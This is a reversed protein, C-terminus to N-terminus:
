SAAGDAKPAPPVARGTRKFLHPRGAAWLVVCVAVAGILPAGYTAPWGGPTRIALDIMSNDISKLVLFALIAGIIQRWLGFRSFGGLLLVSFGLMAGVVTLLSQAIREHGAELLRNVDARTERMIAEDPWLLNATPQADVTRRGSRAGPMMEGLDFSFDKFTTVSLRQEALELTQAMGDLMVLKPGTAEAILLARRASYNTRSASARSDSLFVDLLEGQPSVERVYFTLGDVPHIFAGPTLLRATVNQAIVAQRENMARVSAPALVHALVGLMLGVLVGYILVPRVLRFPSYGTAQVVVLESESSLRNAVFIAAGFASFPVVLRIVNPLILATMELFIGGSNGAAILRDFLIVARNIWYVLVMILTFFGFSVM